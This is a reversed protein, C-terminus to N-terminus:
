PSRLAKLRSDFNPLLDFRGQVENEVRPKM